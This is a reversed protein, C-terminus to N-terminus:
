QLLYFYANQIFHPIGIFLFTYTSDKTDHANLIIFLYCQCIRMRSSKVASSKHHM